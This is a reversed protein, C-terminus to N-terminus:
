ISQEGYRQFIGFLIKGSCYAPLSFGCCLLLLVAGSAYQAFYVLLLVPITQILIMLITRPLYGIVLRFAFEVYGSITNEYYAIVPFFYICFAIWVMLILNFFIRIFEIGWGSMHFLLYYNVGLTLFVLLLITWVITSEKFNERFARFFTKIIYPEDGAQLRLLVKYMGAASAGATVIPICCILFLLNVAVVYMVKTLFRNMYGDYDFFHKM